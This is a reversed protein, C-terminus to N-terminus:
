RSIVQEAPIDCAEALRFWALERSDTISVAPQKNLLILWPKCKTSALLDKVIRQVGRDPLRYAAVGILLSGNITKVWEIAEERTKQDVINLDCSTSHPWSAQHDLEIGVAYTYEPVTHNIPAEAVEASQENALLDADIIVSREKRTMLRQRLDIYYPLYLDPKFQRESWRLMILSVAFLLLRPLVGYILLVGILFRAWASRTEADQRGIGMRSMSVQQSDPIKLGVLMLPKGLSATLRPLSQEALLTTGWIFNYQKALMLLLLLVTGATLYVLWFQHTFVSIRWKGIRGTLHNEWWAHGAISEMTNKKQDRFSWWSALQAAVGSSLSPINMTIGFGWLVLSLVNFGLLVALLWYINLTHLENVAHATALGGFVSAVILSIYFAKRFQNRPKIIIEELRNDRILQNARTILQQMFDAYKFGAKAQGEMDSVGVYTLEDQKESEIRRIQEVRVLDTFTNNKVSM